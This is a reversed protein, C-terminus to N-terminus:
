PLNTPRTGAGTGAGDIREGGGRCLKPLGQARPLDLFRALAPLTQRPEKSLPGLHLAKFPEFFRVDDFFVGRHTWLRCERPM